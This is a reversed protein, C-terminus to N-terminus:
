IQDNKTVEDEEEGIIHTFLQFVVLKQISVPATAASHRLVVRFQIDTSSFSSWLPSTPYATTPFSFAFLTCFSKNSMFLTKTSRM